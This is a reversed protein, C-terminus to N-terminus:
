SEVSNPLELIQGEKLSKIILQSQTEADMDNKATIKQISLTEKKILEYMGNGVCKLLWDRWQHVLREKM